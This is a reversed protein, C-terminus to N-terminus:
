AEPSLLSGLLWGFFRRQPRFPLAKIAEASPNNSTVRALADILLAEVDTGEGVVENMREVDIVPKGDVEKTPLIQRMTELFEEIQDSTPEPIEGSGQGYKTFDWTLLDEGADFRQEAM